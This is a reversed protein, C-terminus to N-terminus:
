HPPPGTSGRVVLCGPLVLQRPKVALGGIREILFGLASDIIQRYPFTVTTLPPDLYEAAWTDDFGILSVDRPVHLGMDRLGRFAGFAMVDNHCFIATPPRARSMLVQVADRAEDASEGPCEIQARHPLGAQRLVDTWARTRASRLSARRSLHGIRRHGMGVLHAVAMSAGGHDDLIVSDAKCSPAASGFYVV